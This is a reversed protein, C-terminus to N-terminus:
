GHKNSKCYTERVAIKVLSKLSMIDVGKACTVKVPGKRSLHRIIGLKYRAETNELSDFHVEVVEASM